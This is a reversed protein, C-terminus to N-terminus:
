YGGRSRRSSLGGGGGIFRSDGRDFDDTTRQLKVGKKENVCVRIMMFAEQMMARADAAVADAKTGEMGAM